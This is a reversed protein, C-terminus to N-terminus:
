YKESPTFGGVLYKQNTITADLKPISTGLNKKTSRYVKTDWWCSPPFFSWGFEGLSGLSGATGLYLNFCYLPHGSIRTGRTMMWKTRHCKGHNKLMFLGDLSSPIGLFSKKSIHYSGYISRKGARFEKYIPIIMLGKMLNPSPDVGLIVPPIVM